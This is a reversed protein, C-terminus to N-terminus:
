YIPRCPLLVCPLENFLCTDGAFNYWHKLLSVHADYIITFSPFENKFHLKHLCSSDLVKFRLHFPSGGSFIIISLRRHKQNIKFPRYNQPRFDISSPIKSFSCRIRAYWRAKDRISLYWDTFILIFILLDSVIIIQFYATIFYNTVLSFFLSM